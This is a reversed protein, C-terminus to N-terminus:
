SHSLEVTVQEAPLTRSIYTHHVRALRSSGSTHAGGDVGLTWSSDTHWCPDHKSTLVLIRAPGLLLLIAKGLSTEM